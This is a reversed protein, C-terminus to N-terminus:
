QQDELIRLILKIDGKLEQIEIKQEGQQRLIHNQLKGVEDEVEDVSESLDSIEESNDAIQDEARVYSAVIGVALVVIPIWTKLTDGNVTM